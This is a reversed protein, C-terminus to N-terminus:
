LKQFIIKMNNWNDDCLLKLMREDIYINDKYQKAKNHSKCQFNTSLAYVDPNYHSNILTRLIFKMYITATM